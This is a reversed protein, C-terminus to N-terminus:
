EYDEWDEWKSDRNIPGKRSMPILVNFQECEMEISLNTNIYGQTKTAQRKASTLNKAKIQWTTAFGDRETETIHYTNM